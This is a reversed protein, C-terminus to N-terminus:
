DKKWIVDDIGAKHNAFRSAVFLFDSLRNMFVIIDKRVEENASLAIIVRESRRAITRANNLYAALTTGGPIVFNNLPTLQATLEDISKELWDIHSQNIRIEKRSVKTNEPNALDAGLEFLVNNLKNLHTKLEDPVQMTTIIGIVSNLEDVTGYAFVRMSAKSLRTGDFLSTSGDDGTKTYIKM